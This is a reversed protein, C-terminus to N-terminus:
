PALAATTLSAEAKPSLEPVERDMLDPTIGTDRRVRMAAFKPSERLPSRDLRDATRGSVVRLKMAAAKPSSPRRARVVVPNLETYTVTTSNRSADEASEGASPGTTTTEAHATLLSLSLLVAAWRNWRQHNMM